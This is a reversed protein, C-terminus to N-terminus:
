PSLGTKSLTREWACSWPIKITAEDPLSPLVIGITGADLGFTRETVEPLRLPSM